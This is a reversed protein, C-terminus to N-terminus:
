DRGVTPRRFASSTAVVARHCLLRPAPFLAQLSLEPGWGGLQREQPWEQWRRWGAALRDSKTHESFVHAERVHQVYPLEAVREDRDAEQYRLLVADGIRDAALRLVEEVWMLSDADKKARRRGLQPPCGFCRHFIGALRAFLLEDHFLASPAGRPKGDRKVERNTLEALEVIM